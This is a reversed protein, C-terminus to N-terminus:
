PSPEAPTLHGIAVAVVIGVVLGALADIGYHM